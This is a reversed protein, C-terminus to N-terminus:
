AAISLYILIEIVKELDIGKSFDKCVLRAGEAVRADEGYGQWEPFLLRLTKM